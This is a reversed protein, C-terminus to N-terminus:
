RRAGRARAFRVACKGAEPEVFRLLAEGEEALADRAAAALPEFPELVLTAAGKASELEWTGRVFGDVLFTPLVRLNATTLRKRHEDAVIRRRDADHALVLNDYDPLFRVPAEADEPPRPAKPLDYLERGREDRFARLKPRLAAFADKLGPAGSWAQADAPTAPGFAALYRLALAEPEAPADIAEGLWEEALAFDASAPFGWVDDTPVQVLPLRTRVAYGMARADAKPFRAALRARLEEFTCPSGAFCARAAADLKALDLGEARERVASRLAADLAPQLAPRLARYDKASLLHLTARMATARVLQRKRLPQLLQERRFERLRSWLGIFPPRAVQAQMGALREVARVVPVKERALLMQRALTARNLRRLDLTEM